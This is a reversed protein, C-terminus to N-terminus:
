KNMAAIHLGLSLSAGFVMMLGAVGMWRLLLPNAKPNTSMSASNELQKALFWNTKLTFFGGLAISFIYLALQLWKM